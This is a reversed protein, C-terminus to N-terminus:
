NQCYKVIFMGCLNTDFSNMQHCSGFSFIAKIPKSEIITIRKRDNVLLRTRLFL